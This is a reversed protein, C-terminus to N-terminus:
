KLKFDFSSADSIESRKIVLMSRDNKSIIIKHLEYEEGPMMNSRLKMEKHASFDSFASVLRKSSNKHKYVCVVLKWNAENSFVPDNSVKSFAKIDAKEISNKIPLGSSEQSPNVM